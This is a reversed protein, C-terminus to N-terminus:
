FKQNITFDFLTFPLREYFGAVKASCLFHANKLSKASKILSKLRIKQPKCKIGLIRSLVSTQLSLTAVRVGCPSSITGLSRQDERWFASGEQKFNRLGYEGEPSYHQLVFGGCVANTSNVSTKLVCIKYLFRSNGVYFYILTCIRASCM